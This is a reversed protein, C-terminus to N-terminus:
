LRRPLGGLPDGGISVVGVRTGDPLREARVHLGAGAPLHVGTNLLIMPPDLLPVIGHQLEAGTRGSGAEAARKIFEAGGKAGAGVDVFADGQGLM